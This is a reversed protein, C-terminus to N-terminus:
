WSEEAPIFRKASVYEWQNDEYILFHPFGTKDDKIGYVHVAMNSEKDVVKFLYNM